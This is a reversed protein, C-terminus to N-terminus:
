RVEADKVNSKSRSGVSGTINPLGHIRQGALSDDAEVRITQQVPDPPQLTSASPQALLPKQFTIM